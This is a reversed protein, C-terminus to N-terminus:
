ETFSNDKRFNTGDLIDNGLSKGVGGFDSFVRAHSMTKPSGVKREM